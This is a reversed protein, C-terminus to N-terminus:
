ITIVSYFAQLVKMKKELLISIFWQPYKVVHDTSKQLTENVVFACTVKLFELHWVSAIKAATRHSSM